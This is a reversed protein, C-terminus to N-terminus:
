RAADNKQAPDGSRWLSDWGGAFSARIEGHVFSLGVAVVGAVSSSVTADGPYGLLWPAALLWLGVPLAVWRVSRTIEWAAIVGVSVLLPGAVRDSTAAPDGYGLVAPAAMLWLGVAAVLLQAYMGRKQM